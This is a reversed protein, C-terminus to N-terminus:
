QQTGDEAIKWSLLANTWQDEIIAMISIKMINIENVLLHAGVTLRTDNACACYHLHQTWREVRKEHPLTFPTTWRRRSWFGRLICDPSMFLFKVKTLRLFHLPLWFHSILHLWRVNILWRGWRPLLPFLLNLLLKLTITPTSMGM